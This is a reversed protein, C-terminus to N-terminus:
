TANLLKPFAQGKQKMVEKLEHPKFAELPISDLVDLSKLDNDVVHIPLQGVPPLKTCVVLLLYAFVM